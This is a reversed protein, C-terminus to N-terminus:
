IGDVLLYDSRSRGQHAGEERGKRHLASIHKRLEDHLDQAKGHTGDGNIYHRESKWLRWILNGLASSVRDVAERVVIPRYHPLRHDSSAKAYSTQRCLHPGSFCSGIM